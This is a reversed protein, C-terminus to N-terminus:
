LTKKGQSSRKAQRAERRKRAGQILRNPLSLPKNPLLRSILRKLLKALFSIIRDFISKGRRFFSGKLRGKKKSRKGAKRPDGDQDQDLDPSIDLDNEPETGGQDREEELEEALTARLKAESADPNVFDLDALDDITDAEEEIESPRAIALNDLVLDQDAYASKSPGSHKSM